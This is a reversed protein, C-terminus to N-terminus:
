ATSQGQQAPLVIASVVMTGFPALEFTFNGKAELAAPDQQYVSYNSFILSFQLAGQQGPEVTVSGPDCTIGAQTPGCEFSISLPLLGGNSVNADFYETAASGNTLTTETVGGGKAIRSLTGFESYGSYAVAFISVLAVVLIALSVARLSSGATTRRSSM